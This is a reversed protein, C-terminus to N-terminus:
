ISYQLTARFFPRTEPRFANLVDPNSRIEERLGQFVHRMFELNKKAKFKSKQASFRNKLRKRVEMINSTSVVGRRDKGNKILHATLNKLTNNPMESLMREDCRKLFEDETTCGRLHQWPDNTELFDDIDAFQPTLSLLPTTSNDLEVADLDAM